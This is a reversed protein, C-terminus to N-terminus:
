RTKNLEKAQELLQAEMAHLRLLAEKREPSMNPDAARIAQEYTSSSKPINTYTTM